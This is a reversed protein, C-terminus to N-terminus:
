LSNTGPQITRTLADELTEMIATSQAYKSQSLIGKIEKLIPDMQHHQATLLQIPPDPLKHQLHPFMAKDETVHHAHLLRVLCRVYTLYGKLIQNDPYGVAAIRAAYTQAVEVARSLARHVRILDGGIEPQPPNALPM